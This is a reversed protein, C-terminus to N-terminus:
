RFDPENMSVVISIAVMVVVMQKSRCKSAPVEMAANYINCPDTNRTQTPDETALYPHRRPISLIFCRLGVNGAATFTVEPAFSQWAFVAARNKWNIICVEYTITSINQYRMLRRGAMGMTKIRDVLQGMTQADGPEKMAMVMVPKVIGSMTLAQAKLGETDAETSNGVLYTMYDNGALEVFQLL